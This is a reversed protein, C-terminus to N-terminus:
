KNRGLAARSLIKSLQDISYPKHLLQFGHNGDLALVHSYGSTLIVPLDPYLRRVEQGLEIGSIGPMMVDSFVVDYSREGDLEALAATGSTVLVTEYGLERLTQMAFSGVDENDEVVLIRTGSGDIAADGETTMAVAHRPAKSLPLYITFVSGRGLESSVCIDGGSQKVFGFVQSLGLGTGQGIDKTTYFPEFIREMVAPAIGSGSDSVSIAVYDAERAAHTRICPVSSVHHVVMELRGEGNMADRANVALNVLATDFQSPDANVWCDSEVLVVDVVVRSGTLTKIMDRLAGVSLSADFTVPQLAQRRAFALLQGTLRTARDCTTSIADIYRARKEEALGPRALLDISGRIVTLLNNFDHAVGGTLQGIADMKQSQRLADEAQRRTTIDMAQQVLSAVNGTDDLAPRISFDYHREEGTPLVLSIERRTTTGNRATEVWERVLSPVGETRVFWPADWVSTGLIEDRTAAIAELLTTNVELITGDLGMLAQLQYSSESLIRQRAQAQRLAEDAIRDDTVDRASAYIRDGEPVAFWSLTRYSGDKCRHRNEFKVVPDESRSAALLKRTEGIDDPHLLDWIKSGVLDEESWGLKARWAPNVSEIRGGANMVSLLDPSVQWTVARERAKEAVRRELDANVAERADLAVRLELQTMVQAALRKLARRQRETLDRPRVDFVCLTGIALGASTKLLAGAYFRLHPDSTVLPNCAFRPDDTADPVIVFDDELLVHRCFSSDLPVESVGLGVESKFYQRHADIFSVIAIPTDCIEAAFAAIEDFAEERGSDMIRYRELAELRQVEGLDHAVGDSTVLSSGGDRFVFRDDAM